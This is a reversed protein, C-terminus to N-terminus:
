VTKKSDRILLIIWLPFLVIAVICVMAVLISTVNIIKTMLVSNIFIVRAVLQLVVGAILTPLPLTLLLIWSTKHSKKRASNGQTAQNNTIQAQTHETWQQGDWYRMLGNNQPDQYWGAPIQNEDM